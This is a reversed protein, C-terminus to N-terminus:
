LRLPSIPTVRRWAPPAEEKTLDESSSTLQHKEAPSVEGEAPDLEEEGLEGSWLCIYFGESPLRQPQDTEILPERSMCHDM